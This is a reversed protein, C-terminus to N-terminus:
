FYMQTNNSFNMSYINQSKTGRVVYKTRVKIKHKFRTFIDIKFFSNHWHLIHVSQNSNEKIFNLNNDYSNNSIHTEALWLFSGLYMHHM